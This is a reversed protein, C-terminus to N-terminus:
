TSWQPAGPHQAPWVSGIQMLTVSVGPPVTFTFQSMLVWVKECLTPTSFASGWERLLSLWSLSPSVQSPSPLRAGQLHQATQDLQPLRPETATVLFGSFRLLM